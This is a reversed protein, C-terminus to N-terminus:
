AKVETLFTLVISIPVLLASLWSVAVRLSAVSLRNIFRATWDVQLAHASIDPAAEADGTIRALTIADQNGHLAALRNRLLNRRGFALASLVVGLLFVTGVFFCNWFLTSVITGDDPPTRLTQLTSWVGLTFAAFALLAGAIGLLLNGKAALSLWWDRTIVPM